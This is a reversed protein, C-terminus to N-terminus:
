QDWAPRLIPSLCYACDSFVPRACFGGVVAASFGAFGGGFCALVLRLLGGGVGWIMCRPSGLLYKRFYRVFILTDDASIM